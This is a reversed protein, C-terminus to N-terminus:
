GEETVSRITTSQKLEKSANKKFGDHHMLEISGYKVVPMAEVM